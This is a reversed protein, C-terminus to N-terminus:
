VYLSVSRRLSGAAQVPFYGYVVKPELLREDGAQKQLADFVPRAKEDLMREHEEPSVSGSPSTSM